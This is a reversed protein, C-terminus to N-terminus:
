KSQRKPKRGLLARDESDIDSDVAPDPLEQPELENEGAQDDVDEMGGDGQEEDHVLADADEDENM